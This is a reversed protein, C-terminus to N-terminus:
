RADGRRSRIRDRLGWKTVKALAELVIARSFKSSGHERERFTIPVEGVTFGQRWARYALEIQFAYGESRIGDDMLSELVRRRYARYGSTADHIPMRLLARAYANGAKSIGLRARSWNSVAGGPVYRSGIAV